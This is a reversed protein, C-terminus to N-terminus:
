ARKFGGKRIPSLFAEELYYLTEEWLWDKHTWVTDYGIFTRTENAWTQTPDNAEASWPLAELEPNFYGLSTASSVGVDLFTASQNYYGYHTNQVAASSPINDWLGVQSPVTAKTQGVIADGTYVPPRFISFLQNLRPGSYGKPVMIPLTNTIPSINPNPSTFSNTVGAYTVAQFKQMALEVADTSAGKDLKVQVDGYAWSLINSVQQAETASFADQGGVGTSLANLCAEAFTLHTQISASLTLDLSVTAAVPSVLGAIYVLNDQDSYKVGCIADLWDVLMPPVSYTYLRNLDATLRQLNQMVANAIRSMTFSLGGSALCSQLCRLISFAACYSDLWAPLSNFTGANAITTDRIAWLKGAHSAGERVMLSYADVLWGGIVTDVRVDFVGGDQFWHTKAVGEWNMSGVMPQIVSPRGTFARDNYIETGVIRGTGMSYLNPKEAVSTVASTLCADYVTKVTISTSSPREYPESRKQTQGRRRSSM